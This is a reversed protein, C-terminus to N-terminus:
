NQTLTITKSMSLTIIEKHISRVQDIVKGELVHSIREWLRHFMVKVKLILVFFVKWTKKKKDRVIYFFSEM